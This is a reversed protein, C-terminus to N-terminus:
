PLFFDIGIGDSSSRLFVGLSIPGIRSLNFMRIRCTAVFAASRGSRAVHGYTREQGTLSPLLVVRLPLRPRRLTTMQLAERYRSAAVGCRMPREQGRPPLPTADTANKLVDMPSFISRLATREDAFACRM